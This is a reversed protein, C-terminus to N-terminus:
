AAAVEEAEEAPEVKHRFALIFDAAKTAAASAHFLARRDNKLVELWNAIYSASRTEAATNPVGLTATLFSSAMEAILEEIAYNHDGFRAMTNLRDLRSSHGTWHALEHLATSYYDQPQDFCEKYPLAIHDTPLSYFAQSGGYIIRAGTAAITEEAPEYSTFEVNSKPKARYKDLAEGGCQDLNFVIYRRCFFQRQERQIGNSDDIITVVQWHVIRTGHEGKRVHGGLTQWQRFTAFLSSGWGQSEAAMGLLWVNIGRYPRSSVINRPMGGGNVTWPRRWPVVGRELQEIIRDTVEQYVSTQDAM